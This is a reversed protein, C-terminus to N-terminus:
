RHVVKPMVLFPSTLVEQVILNPVVISPGVLETPLLPSVALCSSSRLEIRPVWMISFFLVLVQFNDETGVIYWPVHISMYVCVFYIFTILKFISKLSVTGLCSMLGSGLFAVSCFLSKRVM